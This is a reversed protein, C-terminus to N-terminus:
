FKLCKLFNNALAITGSPKLHLGSASLYDESINSNDCFIFSNEKCKVNLFNNIEVGKTDFADNRTVLSSIIINNEDTKTEKALNIIDTAIQNSSKESRLDNTGCHLVFTDPKFKISPKVYDVMCGVIAGPFSKIHIKDNIDLCQKMKFAKITKMM